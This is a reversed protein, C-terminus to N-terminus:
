PPVGSSPYAATRGSPVRGDRRDITSRDSEHTRACHSQRHSTCYAQSCPVSPIATFICYQLSIQRFPHKTPSTRSFSRMYLGQLAYRVGAPITIGRFIPHFSFHQCLGSPWLFAIKYNSISIDDRRLCTRPIASRNGGPFETPRNSYISAAVLPLRSRGAYPM